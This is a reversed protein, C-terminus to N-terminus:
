VLLVAAVAKAKNRRALKTAGVSAALSAAQQICFVGVPGIGM